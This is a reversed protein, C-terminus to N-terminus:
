MIKKLNSFSSDLVSCRVNGPHDAMYLIATSAGMSRGWLGINSVKYKSRIHKIVAELDYREKYGLTVFEGESNGCGSFDFVCL